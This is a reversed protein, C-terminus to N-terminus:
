DQSSARVGASAEFDLVRDGGAYAESEFRQFRTVLKLLDGVVSTATESSELLEQVFAEGDASLSERGLVKRLLSTNATLVTLPQNFRHQFGGRLWEMIEAMQHEVTDAVLADMEARLRKIQERPNDSCVDQIMRRVTQRYAAPSFPKDIYDAVGIRLLRVVMDKDGAGTMVLIPLGAFEENVHRILELGGMQPMHIDTILLDFGGGEERLLSLAEAGTTGTKVDYGEASLSMVATELALPEDEAILIRHSM